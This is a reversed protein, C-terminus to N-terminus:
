FFLSSKESFLDLDRFSLNLCSSSSSTSLARLCISSSPSILFYTGSEAATFAGRDFAITGSSPSILCFFSLSVSDAIDASLVIDSVKSLLMLLLMLRKPSLSSRVDFCVMTSNLRLRWRSSRFWTSSERVIMSQKTSSSLSSSRKIFTSSYNLNRLQISIPLSLSAMIRSCLFVFCIRKKEGEM